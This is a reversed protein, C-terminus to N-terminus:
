RIKRLSIIFDVLARAFFYSGGYIGLAALWFLVTNVVGGEFSFPDINMDKIFTFFIFFIIFLFTAIIFTKAVNMLRKRDETGRRTFSAGAFVLGGLTASLMVLNIHLAEPVKGLIDFILYISITAFLLLISGPRFMEIWNDINVVWGQLKKLSKTVGGWLKRMFQVIKM